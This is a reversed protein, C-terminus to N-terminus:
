AALKQSQDAGNQEFGDVFRVGNVIKGLILPANIRRWKAQATLALKYVMTLTSTRNSCGKSRKTRHRVTAFTSEIPNTSRIHSWHEAPFDYFTFLVEKDKALCACAKPYKAEYLRLFKGYTDHATKLTPSLYMEHLLGKAARQVSKPMKDLVNATKHVWCRQHRVSGYEEDLAAWFGLAGDGVALRPAQELGREKLDRLLEKWSLKSERYGEMVAILEKRGDELAGMVVLICLREDELRVNFYIGDVWWYVYRKGRLSRQGWQKFEDEWVAKLRVINAASLGVVGPGLIARLAEEFDGSSIGKLYLAPLLADVSPLRRLYPPLIASTYRAQGDRHRVRPVSVELPGVGTVLRRSPLHGHRVVVQRGAEDRENQWQSLYEQVEAEIAQQLMKRAGSRVIEDLVSAPSAECLVPLEIVNDKKM